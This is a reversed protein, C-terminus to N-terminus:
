VKRLAPHLLSLRSIRCPPEGKLYPCAQHSHSQHFDHQAPPTDFTEIRDALNRLQEAIWDRLVVSQHMADDFWETPTSRLRELWMLSTSYWEPIAVYPAENLLPLGLLTWIYLAFVLLLVAHLPLLAASLIMLHRSQFPGPDIQSFLAPPKASVPLTLCFGAAVTSLFAPATPNLRLSFGLVIVLPILVSSRATRSTILLYALLSIVSIVIVVLTLDLSGSQELRTFLHVIMWEAGGSSQLSAGLQTTAAMFLLLNWEVQKMADKFSIVGIFPMTVILAGVVAVPSSHIGHLTESLWLVIMALVILGVRREASTLRTHHDSLHTLRVPMRRENRSLFFHTIMWCSLFSSILAFPLGLLLRRGYSLREGTMAFTVEATVLHAGAGTLTAAASLLIITPFLLALARTVRPNGIASSIASFVPLMLAARGSTAPIAFSTLILGFTLAYFLANINRAHAALLHAIRVAPGSSNVAAAVIFSAMLLWITSDGLSGFFHEPSEQNAFLCVIAAVLGIYTDNIRTTTWGLIALTFTIFVIRTTAPLNPLNIWIATALVVASAIILINRLQKIVTIHQQSSLRQTSQPSLTKSMM